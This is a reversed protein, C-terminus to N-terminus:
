VEILLQINHLKQKKKVREEQMYLSYERSRHNENYSVDADDSYENAYVDEDSFNFIEYKNDEIYEPSLDDIASEGYVTDLSYYFMEEVSKKDEVINIDNRNSICQYMFERLFEEVKDLEENNYVKCKKLNRYANIVLNEINLLEKKQAAREIINTSFSGERLELLISVLMRREEKRM